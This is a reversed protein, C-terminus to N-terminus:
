RPAGGRWAPAQARAPLLWLVLATGSALACPALGARLDAGLWVDPRGAVVVVHPLLRLGVVWGAHLGMPLWLTAGRRAAGCLALGVAVLTCFTGGYASPEALPALTHALALLGAHWAVDETVPGRGPAAVFHVAAFVAVSLGTGAGLGLRRVWKRWLVGRFIPEELAAVAAATALASAGARALTAAHLQPRVALRGCILLLGVLVAFGVAGLAAGGVLQRGAQRWDRAGPRWDRGLLPTWCPASALACLLWSRRLYTPFAFPALQPVLNGHVLLRGLWFAPPALLAGVLLIAAAWAWGPIPAAPLPGAPPATPPKLISVSSM